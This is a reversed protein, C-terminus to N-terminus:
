PLSALLRDLAAYSDNMGSEMGSEIMGDRDQKTNFRSTSTITTKGDQETFVLTEVAIRGPMGEDEFTQM